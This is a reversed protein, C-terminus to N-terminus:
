ADIASYITAEFRDLLTLVAPDCFPLIQTLVLGTVGRTPDVWFYTNFLGAWGWSGASRRGPVPQTNILGGLSWQKVMGPFLEVDNSLDPRVSPLREVTLDGIHNRALDAVSEPRLVRHADVTGGALLMRLLRLYDPGTSFLGGGGNFFAPRAPVEVDNLQVSGDAQRQHRGVLRARQDDRLIFGTDGMGLPEFIHVRFYDDLSEGTVHEVLRGTWDSGAGYEWREGPDFVLPTELSGIPGAAQQELRLLASDWTTYGFGSTHTLLHRLTIPRRPPRLRPSGAADFGELVQVAGLEPMREGVPEELALRGQEVLQLAAIATIAKTMSAIRFVTDLTMAAPQDLARQGFAGQYVVQNTDAALAVVGPIEGHEVASALTQDAADVRQAEVQMPSWDIPEGGYRRSGVLTRTSLSAPHVCFVPCVDVTLEQATARSDLAEIPLCRVGRQRQGIALPRQVRVVELEQRGRCKQESLHLLAEVRQPAGILAMDVAALRSPGRAAGEPQEKMEIVLAVERLATAPQAAGVPEQLLLRLLTRLM